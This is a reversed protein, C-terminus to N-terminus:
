GAPGTLELPRIWVYWIVVVATLYGSAWVAGGLVDYGNAALLYNLAGPVTVGLALALGLRLKEGRGM